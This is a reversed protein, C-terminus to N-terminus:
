YGLDIGPFWKIANSYYFKELVERPLALGQITYSAEPVPRGGSRISNAWPFEEDTAYYRMFFDHRRLYSQKMNNIQEETNMMYISNGRESTIKKIEIKSTRGM